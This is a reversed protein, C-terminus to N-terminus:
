GASRALPTVDMPQGVILVRPASPVAEVLFVLKDRTELSYIIPPTYEPRTAVYDVTATMGAPCGDCAIAVRTGPRFGNVMGQPVYFRVKVKEDPLLSVIAANAAAWEGAQYMVDEIRGPAPAHPSLQAVQQAADALGARSGSIQARASAIRAEAAAVEGRAADRQRFASLSTARAQDIQQGAVSGPKEAQAAVFRALDVAARQAETEAAALNARAKRLEAQQAGAQAESEGIRARAQDARAGLSTPDIRFLPAGAPVRQGRVVSLSTVTGAVPASMYIADSVVYGTYRPLEDRRGSRLLLWVLLGIAMLLGILVPIPLIRRRHDPAKGAM